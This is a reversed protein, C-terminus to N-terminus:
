PETLYDTLGIANGSPDHLEAAWGTKIRYPPKSLVVGQQELERCVQRVDAVQLMLAPRADPYRRSDKLIIAPEGDGARFALLGRDSFDFKLPLGLVGAYFQRSQELDAAPLFYNDIGIIKTMGTLQHQKYCPSGPRRPAPQLQWYVIIALLLRPLWLHLKM